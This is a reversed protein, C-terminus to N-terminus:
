RCSAANFPTSLRYLIKGPCRKFNFDVVRVVLLSDITRSDDVMAGLGIIVEVRLVVEDVCLVLGELLVGDLVEVVAFGTDLGLAM